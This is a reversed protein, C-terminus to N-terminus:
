DSTLAALRTPCHQPYGDYFRKVWHRGPLHLQHPQWGLRQMLRDSIADTSLHAFIAVAGRARAIEDLVLGAGLVTPLRTRKGTCVFDLVLYRAFLPSHYHLVCHDAAATRWRNEWWVRAMSPRRAVIGCRVGVLKGNAITIKGAPWRALTKRDRTLDTADTRLIM